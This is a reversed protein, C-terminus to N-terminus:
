TRSPLCPAAEEWCAIAIPSDLARRAPTFNGVGRGPSALAFVMLCARRSSRLPWLWEALSGDAVRERAVVRAKFRSPCLAAERSERERRARLTAFFRPGEARRLEATLALRVLLRVLFRAYIRVSFGGMSLVRHNPLQFGALIAQVRAFFVSFGALAFVKAGKGRSMCGLRVLFGHLVELM